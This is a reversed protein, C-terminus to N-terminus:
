GRAVGRRRAAVAVLALCAGVIMFGMGERATEDHWWVDLRWWAEARPWYAVIGGVVAVLSAGLLLQVARRGLWSPRFAGVATWLAAAGYVAAWFPGDADDYQVAAFLLLLAALAGLTARMEVEGEFPSVPTRM